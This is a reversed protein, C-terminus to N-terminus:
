SYRYRCDTQKVNCQGHSADGSVDKSCRKRDDSFLLNKATVRELGGHRQQAHRHEDQVEPALHDVDQVLDPEPEAAMAEVAAGSGILM